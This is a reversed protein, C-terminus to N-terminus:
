TNKNNKNIINIYETKTAKILEPLYRKLNHHNKSSTRKFIGDEDFEFENPFKEEVRNRSEVTKHSLCNRIPCFRTQIKQNDELWNVLKPFSEFVKGEQYLNLAEILLMENENIPKNLYEHFRQENVNKLLEDVELYVNKRTEVIDLYIRLFEIEINFVIQFFM